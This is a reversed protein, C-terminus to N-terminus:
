RGRGGACEAWLLKGAHGGALTYAGWADACARVLHLGRGHEASEPPLDGNRVPGFGPPIQPSADWVAVRLRVPDVASPTLRLAYSGTTHLHANTLLESALLEADDTLDSLGHADLIVRLAARAIGPARPDHPLHLAYTWPPPSVTTM